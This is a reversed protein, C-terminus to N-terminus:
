RSRASVRRRASHTMLRVAFPLGEVLYRRALRRPERALRHIWELGTRQMWAPARRVDGHVFSLTIGLGFFWAQPLAARLREIVREQKPAGLCVLVIAPEAARLREALAAYEADSERFDPLPDIGVFRLGAYLQKLRAAAGAAAGPAGGVLYVPADVAAARECLPFIMGSGPVREPLPTGQVRSAWVLPMGDAVVFDAEEYFHRVDPDRVYRELHALNPTVVWGGRGDAIAAFVRDLLTGTDIADLPLGMLDIRATVLGSRYQSVAGCSRM